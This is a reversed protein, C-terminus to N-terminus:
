KKMIEGIKNKLLIMDMEKKFQDREKKKNSVVTKKEKNSKIARGKVM